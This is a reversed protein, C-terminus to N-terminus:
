SVHIAVHSSYVPCVGSTTVTHSCRSGKSPMACRLDGSLACECEICRKKNRERTSKLDIEVVLTRIEPRQRLSHKQPHNWRTDGRITTLFFLVERAPSPTYLPIRM